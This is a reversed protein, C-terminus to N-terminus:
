AHGGVLEKIGFNLLSGVKRYMMRTSGLLGAYGEYDDQSIKSAVIVLGRTREGEQEGIVRLSIEGPKQVMKPLWETATDLLEALYSPAAQGQLEPQSFLNRLNSYQVDFADAKVGTTATRDAILRVLNKLQVPLSESKKLIEKIASQEDQGPRAVEENDFFLRYAQETPVRGASTHPQMLFGADTLAAMVNRITAPSVGLGYRTWLLQSGVPQATSMHEQVIVRLIQYERPSLM